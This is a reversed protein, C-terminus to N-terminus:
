QPWSITISLVLSARRATVTSIPRWLEITRKVQAVKNLGLRRLKFSALRSTSIDQEGDKEGKKMAVFM